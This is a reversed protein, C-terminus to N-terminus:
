EDDEGPKMGGFGGGMMSGIAMDEPLEDENQALM